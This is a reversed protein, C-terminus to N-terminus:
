LNAGERQSPSDSTILDPYKQEIELLNNYLKDYEADSIKPEDLVYYLHDHRNIEKRLHEIKKKAEAKDM